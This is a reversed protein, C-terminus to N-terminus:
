EEPDVELFEETDDEYMGLNFNNKMEVVAKKIKQLRRLKVIGKLDYCVEQTDEELHWKYM